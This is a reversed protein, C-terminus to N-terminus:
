SATVRIDDIYWGPYNNAISDVSDFYFRLRLNDTAHGSIDFSVEEHGGNTADRSDWQAITTWSSGGNSSVQVRMIDAVGSWSEVHFFHSFSLEVSSHGGAAIVPSRAWGEAHGVDFDCNPSARSFALQHTPVAPNVCDSAIRWLDNSMSSKHWGSATGDSFDEAYLVTEGPEEVEVTDSVSDSLGNGDTVTLTVTYTGGAAYNHSTTQGSGTNGDGFTWEYSVIAADGASSGSADFSCGLGSCSSSFDATPGVPESVSVTDSTSDSLGNGDTVTLTVTYTGGSAYSHSTTQGSGINGDGFTWEYSVIAADGATSGSGDFDCALFSCSSSFDATPGTPDPDPPDPDGAEGSIRVNDVYWGPFGNAISDVSDFHFRLRLQSSAHASIDFSVEEHGGNTADRSDWQAITTWSSGGNSSVQVRMIDAVGSWSEVHFFHSFSLELESQGSADIVPSQIWGVAHGVNFDCDPAARSFALQHTPVAPDVCDSAVRWLDNSMSSKQWGPATGDSFDEAFLVSSDDESVSVGQSTSDSLGNTDTVTLTVTYTGASAFTHSTTEGSGTNGDGFAWEYSAIPADGATSGSADFSCSLDSCSRSFSATPGDPDPDPDPDGPDGGGAALMLDARVLGAGQRDSSMGLNEATSTLVNRLETFGVDGYQAIYLALAGSVHPAAMSTGSLTGYGSTGSTTSHVSSGPAIVTVQPGQSSFSSFGDSSTSSSVINVINPNDLWPQGVCNSCPGSNGAAAVHTTGLNHAYAIADNITSSSGGGGWSNQSIHAGEDGAYMLANAINTTSAAGCGFFSPGFIRVPLITSQSIGALGVGNDITAGLTGTVHTGHWSCGSSDSTDSNGGHFNWGNLIRSQGAYEEHGANLGSDVVAIKVASSGLTYDWAAEAGIRHTGWLGSHSNHLPDNPTYLLQGYLPDDWELYRVNDDLLAHAQLTAPEMARVVLIRLGEIVDVVPHGAYHTADEPMDHFAVIWRDFGMGILEEQTFETVLRDPDLDQEEVIAVGPVTALAAVLFSLGIAVALGRQM